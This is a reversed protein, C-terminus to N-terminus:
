NCFESVLSKLLARPQVVISWYGEHEVPDHPLVTWETFCAAMRADTGGNLESAL